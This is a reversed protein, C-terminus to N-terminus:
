SKGVHNERKCKNVFLMIAHYSRQFGVDADEETM